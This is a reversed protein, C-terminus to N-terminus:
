GVRRVTTRALLDGPRQRHPTSVMILLSLLPVLYPPPVLIEVRFVNRYILASTSPRGGDIDQVELGMLRKGPTSAFLVEFLTLYAVLLIVAWAILVTRASPEIAARELLEPMLFSLARFGALVIMTDVAFALGRDTMSAVDGASAVVGEPMALSSSAPMGDIAVAAVPQPQWVWRKRLKTAGQFVLLGSLLLLSGFWGYIMATQETPRRALDQWPRWAGSERVTYRIVGGIQALLFEKGTAIGTALHTVGAAGTLGERTYTIPDVEKFNGAEPQFVRITSDKARVPVGYLRLQTGPPALPDTGAAMAALDNPFHGLKGFHTGDFTTWRVEGKTGRGEEREVRWFVNLVGDVVVSTMLLPPAVSTETKEDKDAQTELVAAGVLHPTEPSDAGLPALAWEDNFRAARLAGSKDTAFVFVQDNLSALHLPHTLELDPDSIEGSWVRELTKRMYVSYFYDKQEKDTYLAVLRDNALTASALIGNVWTKKGFKKGDGTDAFFFGENGGHYFVFGGQPDGVIQPATYGTALDIHMQGLLVLLGVLLLIPVVTGRRFRRWQPDPTTAVPEPKATM